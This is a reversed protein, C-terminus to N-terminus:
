SHFKEGLYTCIQELFTVDEPSFAAPTDSDVDLVAVVAGTSDKVAGRSRQQHSSCAISQVLTRRSCGTNRRDVSGAYATLCSTCVVM